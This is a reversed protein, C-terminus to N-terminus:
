STNTYTHTHTCKGKLVGGGGRRKMAKNTRFHRMQQEWELWIERKTGTHTEARRDTYSDSKFVSNNEM